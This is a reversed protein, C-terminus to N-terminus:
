RTIETFRVRDGPKILSPSPRDLDWLPSTTSGIIQWGGPSQQPYVASFAGALAVAGAPIQTRPSERRPVSLADSARAPVLYMFGPAFGGFAAVWQTSTHWHILEQQGLGTHKKLVDFDLGTTYDVEITVVDGSHSNRDAPSYDASEVIAKLDTLTLQPSELIVLITEAAPVLERVGSLDGNKLRERLVDHIALVAGLKDERDDDVTILYACDGCPSIIV